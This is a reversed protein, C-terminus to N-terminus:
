QVNALAQKLIPQMKEWIQNVKISEDVNPQKDWNEKVVDYYDVGVDILVQLWRFIKQSDVLKTDYTITAIGKQYDIQLNEVGNLLLLANKAYTEYVKYEDDIKRIQAIFLQLKGPANSVVELKIRSKIFQKKIGLM